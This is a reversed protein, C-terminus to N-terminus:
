QTAERDKGSKRLIYSLSHSFPIPHRGTGIANGDDYPLKRRKGSPCSPGMSRYALVPHHGIGCWILCMKLGAVSPVVVQRYGSLSPCYGVHDGLNKLVPGWFISVSGTLYAYGCRNKFGDASFKPLLRYIM